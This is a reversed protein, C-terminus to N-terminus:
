GRLDLDDHLCLASVGWAAIRRELSELRLRDAETGTERSGARELHRDAHRHGRAMRSPGSTPTCRLLVLIGITTLTAYTLALALRRARPGSSAYRRARSSDKSKFADGLDLILSRLQGFGVEVSEQGITGLLVSGLIPDPTARCCSSRLSQVAPTRLRIASSPGRCRRPRPSGPLPIAVSPQRARKM